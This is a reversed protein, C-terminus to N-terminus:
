KNATHESTSHITAWIATTISAPPLAIFPINPRSGVTVM